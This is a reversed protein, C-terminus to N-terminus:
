ASRRRVVALRTLLALLALALLAPVALPAGGTTPLTGRGPAAAPPPVVGEPAVASPGGAATRVLRAGADFSQVSTRGGEVCYTFTRGDRVHPQGATALVQEPTM